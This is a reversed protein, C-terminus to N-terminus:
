AQCQHTEQSVSGVLNQSVEPFIVHEIRLKSISNVTIMFAHCGALLRLLGIYSSRVDAVFVRM